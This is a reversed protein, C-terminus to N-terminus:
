LVVEDTEKDMGPLSLVHIFMWFFQYLLWARVLRLQLNQLEGKRQDSINDEYIQSDEYDQKFTAKFDDIWRM